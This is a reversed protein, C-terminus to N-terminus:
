AAQDYSTVSLFGKGVPASGMAAPSQSSASIRENITSKGFRGRSNNLVKPISMSRRVCIIGAADFGPSLRTPILRWTV